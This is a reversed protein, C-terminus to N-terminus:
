GMKNNLPLMCSYLIFIFHTDHWVMQLYHQFTWFEKTDGFMTVGEMNLGGGKLGKCGLM